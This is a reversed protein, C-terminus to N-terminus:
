SARLPTRMHGHGKSWDPPPDRDHARPSIRSRETPPRKAVVGDDTKRCRDVISEKLWISITHILAYRRGSFPNAIWEEKTLSRPRWSDRKWSSGALGDYPATGWAASGFKKKRHPYKHVSGRDRRRHHRPRAHRLRPDDSKRFLVPLKEALLEMMKENRSRM